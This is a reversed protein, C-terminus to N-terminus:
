KNEIAYPTPGSLSQVTLRRGTPQRHTEQMWPALSSPKPARGNRMPSFVGEMTITHTRRQDIRLGPRPNPSAQITSIKGTKQDPFVNSISMSSASFDRSAAPSPYNANNPGKGPSLAFRASASFSKPPQENNITTNHKAKPVRKPSTYKMGTCGIFDSAKELRPPQTVPKVHRREPRAAGRPTAVKAKQRRFEIHPREMAFPDSHLAKGRNPDRPVDNPDLPVFIKSAEQTKRPIHRRHRDLQSTSKDVVKNGARMGDDTPGGSPIVSHHVNVKTMDIRVM